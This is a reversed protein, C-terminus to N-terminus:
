RRYNRGRDNIEGNNNEKEKIYDLVEEWTKIKDGFLICDINEKLMNIYINPNDDIMLDINLEKAKDSKKSQNFYIESIKLENEDIFNRTICETNKDYYNSRATIVMLEHGKSVLYDIAQKAGEKVKACKIIEGFHHTLIFYAEDDTWKDAYRKGFDINNRKLVEDFSKSTDVLTDDMDIGIRM